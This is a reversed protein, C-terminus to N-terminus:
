RNAQAWDGGDPTSRGMRLANEFLRNLNSQLRSVLLLNTYREM